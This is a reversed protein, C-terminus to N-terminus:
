KHTRCIANDANKKQAIQPDKMCVQVLITSMSTIGVTSSHTVDALIRNSM